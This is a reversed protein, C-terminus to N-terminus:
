GDKEYRSWWVCRPLSAKGIGWLVRPSGAHLCGRHNARCVRRVEVQGVYRVRTQQLIVGLGEWSPGSEPSVGLGGGTRGRNLEMFVESRIRTPETAVGMPLLIRLPRREINRSSPNLRSMVSSSGELAWSPRPECVLKPLCPSCSKPSMVPSEEDVGVDGVVLAESLFFEVSRESSESSEGEFPLIAQSPRSVAVFRGRMLVAALAGGAVAIDPSEFTPM